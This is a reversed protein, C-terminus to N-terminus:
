GTKWKIIYFDMIWIHKKGCSPCEFLFASRDKVAAKMEPNLTTNISKWMVFPYEGNCGPCTVSIKMRSSM